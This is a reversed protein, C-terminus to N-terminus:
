LDETHKSVTGKGVSEVMISTKVTKIHDEAMDTMPM